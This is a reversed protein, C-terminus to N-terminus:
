GLSLQGGLLTAVARRSPCVIFFASEFFFPDNLYQPQVRSVTLEALQISMVLDANTNM